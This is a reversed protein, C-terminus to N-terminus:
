SSTTSKVMESVTRVTDAMGCSCQSGSYSACGDRHRAYRLLSLAMDRLNSSAHDITRRVVIDLYDPDIPKAIFDNAGARFCQVAVNQDSSATIMVVPALEHARRLQRLATLGDIGPMQYDLLIVDPPSLRVTSVIELASSEMEVRHGRDRLVEALYDRQAEDDDVILVSYPM